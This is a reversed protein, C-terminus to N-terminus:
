SKANWYLNTQHSFSGVVLYFFIKQTKFKSRVAVKEFSVTPMFVSTSVSIPIFSEMHNNAILNVIFNESGIEKSSFEVCLLQFDNPDVFGMSPKFVLNPAENQISTLLLFNVFFTGFASFDGMQKMEQSILKGYM